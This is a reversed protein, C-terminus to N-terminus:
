QCSTSDLSLTDLWFSTSNIFDNQATWRLRINQGAYSGSVNESFSTWGTGMNINSWTAVVEASVGTTANVIELTLTDWALDPTEASDIWIKGTITMPTADAPVAFDQHFTDIATSSTYGGLWTLFTGSDATVGGVESDSVILPYPTAAGSNEVWHGPGLDFDGNTLLNIPGTVCSPSADALNQVPTADAGM